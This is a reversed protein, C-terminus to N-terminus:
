TKLPSLAGAGANMLNKWFDQTSKQYQNELDTAQGMYGVGEGGLATGMGVQEGALGGQVGALRGQEGALQGTQGAAQLQLPATAEIAQMPVGALSKAEQSEIQNQAGQAIPQNSGFGAANARAAASAKASNYANTTADTGASVLSKYYPSSTIPGEYGGLTNQAQGITGQAGGITNEAAGITQGAQGYQQAQGQQNKISTAETTGELKPRKPKHKETKTNQYFPNYMPKVKM